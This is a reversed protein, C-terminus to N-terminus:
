LHKIPSGRFPFTAPTKNYQWPIPLGVKGHSLTSRYIDFVCKQYCGSSFCFVCFFYHGSSNFRSGFYSIGLYYRSTMTATHHYTVRSSREHKLTSPTIPFSFDHHSSRDFLCSLPRPITVVFEENERGSLVCVNKKGRTTTKWRTLGLGYDTNAFYTHMRRLKVKDIM